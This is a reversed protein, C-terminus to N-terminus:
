GHTGTFFMKVLYLSNGNSLQGLPFGPFRPAPLCVSLCVSPRVSPTRIQTNQLTYGSETAQEVNKQNLKEM